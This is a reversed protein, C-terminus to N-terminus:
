GLRLLLTAIGLFSFFGVVDTITTVFTGSSIAPDIGAKDLALPVAVSARERVHVHELHFGRNSPDDLVHRRLDEEGEIGVAPVVMGVM